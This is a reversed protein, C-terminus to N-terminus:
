LTSASGRPHLPLPLSLYCPQSPLSLKLWISLLVFYFWWFIFRGQLLLQKLQEVVPQRQSSVRMSRWMTCEHKWCKRRPNVQDETNPQIVQLLFFASTQWNDTQAQTEVGPQGNWASCWIATSTAFPVQKWDKGRDGRRDTEWCDYHGRWKGGSIVTAPQWADVSICKLVLVISGSDRCSVTQNMASHRRTSTSGALLQHLFMKRRVGMWNCQQM